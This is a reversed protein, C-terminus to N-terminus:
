TPHLQAWESVHAAACDVQIPASCENLAGIKCSVHVRTNIPYIRCVDDDVADYKTLLLAPWIEYGMRARAATTKGADFESVLNGPATNLMECVSNSPFALLPRYQPPPVIAVMVDDKNM